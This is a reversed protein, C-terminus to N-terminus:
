EEAEEPNDETGASEIDPQKHSQLFSDPRPLRKKVAIIMLVVGGTVMFFSIFQSTSFPGVAGRFDARFYEIIFRGVGYNIMYLAATMSRYRFRNYAIILIGFNIFNLASSIIQVPVLPIGAPAESAGEPFTIGYWADTPIGHCCGAMLCGIRGIAQGLAISIVAIDLCRLFGAKIKKIYFYAFLVAALIGGYVVFGTTISNKLTGWFDATLRDAITILYLLKAGLVGCIISYFGINFILDGNMGEKKARRMATLLGLVLATAYAVGYSYINVDGISFLIPRM